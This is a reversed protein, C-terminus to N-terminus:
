GRHPADARAAKGGGITSAQEFWDRHRASTTAEALRWTGVVALPLRTNLLYELLDLTGADAWHLDEVLLGLPNISSLSRLVAAISVFIRQRGSADDRIPPEVDADLGPVLGALTSRVYGPCQALAEKLWRGDDHNLISRLADVVPLFPVETSLPLCRGSAVFCSTDPTAAEVLATKGMGAESTVLLLGTGTGLHHRVATLEAHRGAIRPARRIPQEAPASADLWFNHFTAIDGQMAEVVLELTGWTPLGPASFVKSVTTHSVGAEHALARLSPWGARHHLDHLAVVLDHHAGIPLDPRPLAGM